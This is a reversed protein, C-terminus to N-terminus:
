QAFSMQMQVLLAFSLSMMRISTSFVSTSLVAILPGSLPLCHRLSLPGLLASSIVPRAPGQHSHQFIISFLLHQVTGKMQHSSQTRMCLPCLAVATASLATCCTKEEGATRTLSLTPANFPERRAILHHIRTLFPSSSPVTLLVDDADAFTYRESSKALASSSRCISATKPVTATCKHTCTILLCM